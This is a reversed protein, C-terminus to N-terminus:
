KWLSRENRSKSKNVSKATDLKEVFGVVEGGKVEVFKKADLTESNTGIVVKLAVQQAGMQEFGQTTVKFFVENVGYKADIFENKKYM